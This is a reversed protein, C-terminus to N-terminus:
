NYSLYQILRQPINLKAIKELARQGAAKRVTVRCLQSLSLPTESIFFFPARNTSCSLLCCGRAWVDICARVPLILILSKAGPTTLGLSSGDRGGVAEVIM